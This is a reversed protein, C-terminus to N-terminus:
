RGSRAPAPVAARVGCALGQANVAVLLEVRNGWPDDVFCRRVRPEMERDHKMAVGRAELQAVLATYSAEDALRLAPHAKKAPTFGDEVGVHVQQGGCQFWCGGRKAMDAPKPVEPLGLAEGYFARAQAESGRPAAVQVHDLGTYAIMAAAPVTSEGAAHRV